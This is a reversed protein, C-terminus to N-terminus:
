EAYTVATRVDFRLIFVGGHALTPAGLPPSGIERLGIMACGQEVIFCCRADLVDVM